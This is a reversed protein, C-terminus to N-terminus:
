YRPDGHAAARSTQRCDRSTRSSTPHVRNSRASSIRPARLAGPELPEQLRDCLTAYQGQSGATPPTPQGNQAAREMGSTGKEHGGERGATWSRLELRAVARKCGLEYGTNRGTVSLDCHWATGERGVGRRGASGPGPHNSKTEEQAM